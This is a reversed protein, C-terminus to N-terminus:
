IGHTARRRHRSVLDRRVPRWMCRFGDVLAILTWACRLRVRDPVTLEGVMLGNSFENLMIRSQKRAFDMAKRVHDLTVTESQLRRVHMRFAAHREGMSKVKPMLTKRPPPLCELNEWFESKRFTGVCQIIKATTGVLTTFQSTYPFLSSTQVLGRFRELLAFVQDGPALYQASRSHAVEEVRRRSSTGKRM